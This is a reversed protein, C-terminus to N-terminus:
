KSNRFHIEENIRKIKKKSDLLIYVFFLPFFTFFGFGNKVASYVAVGIFVGILVAHLTKNSNLKKLEQELEQDSLTKLDETKM